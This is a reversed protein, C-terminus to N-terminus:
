FLMKCAHNDGKYKKFRLAALASQHRKDYLITLTEGRGEEQRQLCVVPPPGKAL